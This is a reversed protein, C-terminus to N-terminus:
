KELQVGQSHFHLNDSSRIHYSDHFLIAGFRSSMSDILKSISMNFNSLIIRYFSLNTIDIMLCCNISAYPKKEKELIKQKIKLIPNQKRSHDQFRLPTTEISITKDDLQFDAEQGATGRRVSQFDVGIKDILRAFVFIEFRAGWFSADMKKIERKYYDYDRISYKKVVEIDVLFMMMFHEFSKTLNVKGMQKIFEYERPIPRSLDFEDIGLGEFYKWVKEIM